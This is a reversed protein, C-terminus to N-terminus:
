RGSAAPPRGAQAAERDASEGAGASLLLFTVNDQGPGAAARVARDLADVAADASGDAARLEQAIEAEALTEIGDSAILLCGGPQLRCPRSGCDVLDPPSSVVVSRLMHRRWDTRAAEPSLEGALVLRELFPAMSHDANLRELAGSAYLWMPSDGVSLWDLSRGDYLAAVVTTGMGNLRPDAIERARLDATAAELCTRFRTDPTGSLAPFERAFVEVVARSAVAGGAAGGMGDALIMLLAAAGGDAMDVDLTAFSDEQYARAGQWQRGALPWRASPSPGTTMQGSVVGSSKGRAGPVPM